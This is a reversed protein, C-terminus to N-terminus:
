KGKRWMSRGKILDEINPWAAILEKLAKRNPTYFVCSLASIVYLIFWLKSESYALFLSFLFSGVFFFFFLRNVIELPTRKLRYLKIKKSDQETDKHLKSEYSNIIEEELVKEYELNDIPDRNDKKNKM